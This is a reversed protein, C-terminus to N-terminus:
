RPPSGCPCERATRAAIIADEIGKSPHMRGLFAAYRGTGCSFPMREVDIGHHIVAAISVGAAGSAQSHSIAIM